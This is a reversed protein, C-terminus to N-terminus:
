ESPKADARNFVEKELEGLCDRYIDEDNETVIQKIDMELDEIKKEGRGVDKMFTRFWKSEGKGVCFNYANGAQNARATRGVRHVYERSSNPLDYNIIDTISLIDIGRAILDTAVLVNVKQTSFQKLIKARVSTKNNTSNIYAVEFDRNPYIKTLLLQLLKSLRLSAENSKTFILVNSLKGYNILFKALILPKLSAKAVGFQIKYENLQAPVNFIENVLQKRDNIIVLRPQQFKLASLKGSDTTLTASFILKKPAIKWEKSIDKTEELKSIVVKAWGQFSQNLLRDAEDIVLYKLSKLSITGDLLHEVLRGPTSIIIDPENATLKSGEERISIDNKLSTILLNTGKSLSALTARVQNILPKTPVLIIARVRPVIRTSLDEIIPILYALTKGSGTSANVLLDGQLDPKIRNQSIDNLLLSLVEIQVSFAEKFNLSELNKAMFPSLAFESFPKTNTTSSYIPETLWDLNKLHTTTSSLRKDRPLEPQPLPKLDQTPEQPEEDSSDLDNETPKQVSKHFKLFISLHKSVEPNETSDEDMEALEQSAEAVVEDMATDQDQSPDADAMETDEDPTAESSESSDSSDSSESDSSSSSSSSNSSSSQESDSDSDSDSDDQNDNEPKESESESESDSDTSERRRKLVVKARPQATGTGQNPDFRAGFM